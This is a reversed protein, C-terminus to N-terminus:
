RGCTCLNIRNAMLSCSNLRSIKWKWWIFFTKELQEFCFTTVQCQPCQAEHKLSYLFVPPPAATNKGGHVPQIHWMSSVYSRARRSSFVTETQRDCVGKKKEKRAASLTGSHRGGHTDGGGQQGNRERVRGEESKKEETQRGWGREGRRVNKKDEGAATNHSKGVNRQLQVSVSSMQEESKGLESYRASHIHTHVYWTRKCTSIVVLRNLFM